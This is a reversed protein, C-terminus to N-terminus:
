VHKAVERIALERLWESVRRDEKDALEKFIRKQKETVRIPIFVTKRDPM